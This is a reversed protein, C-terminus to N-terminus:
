KKQKPDWELIKERPKPTDKWKKVKFYVILLVGVVVGLVAALSPASLGGQDAALAPAASAALATLALPIIRRM